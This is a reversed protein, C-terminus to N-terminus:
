HPGRSSNLLEAGLPTLSHRVTNGQRRTSILGAQRLVTAHQSASAASIDARCALEGTTGAHVLLQMVTARTRGLLATLSRPGPGPRATDGAAWGPSRVVPYVLVPPTDPNKLTIPIGFCFFSPLLVLGRGNLFLDQDVPYPLELVPPQWRAQPHLHTLLRAVGGTALAHLRLARDAEVQARIPRWYPALATRHYRRVAEGLTSLVTTDGSALAGLWTAPSRRPALDGLDARLRTRPTALLIDLAEDLCSLGATPTLFDASYGVPPALECLMRSLDATGGLLRGRARDRWLGFEKTGPRKQLAHLSLLVEWLVDPEAALRTHAMDETTFHIRLM